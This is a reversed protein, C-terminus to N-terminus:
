GNVGRKSSFFSRLLEASHTAGVGAVIECQHNLRRDGPVNYLSWVAGAKPDAAGYVIREIRGSVAAGACMSCPELTVYLTYGLLRWSGAKCAAESLVLVEAHATPDQREERRNHDSAVVQGHSDVVLAGVPVDGHQPALAAERLALEMFRSHNTEESM